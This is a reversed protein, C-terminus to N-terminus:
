SRKASKRRYGRLGVIASGILFLASSVPEPTITGYAQIESVAFLKDGINYNGSFRLMNTTVPDALNYRVTDDTPVPRTQMGWGSSKPVNWLREWSDGDWYDLIYGDNNDAQVVLSDIKYLGGLDITINNNVSVSELADWWVTGSYWPNSQPFFAGDTLTDAREQQNAPIPM